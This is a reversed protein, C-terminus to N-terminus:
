SGTLFEIWQIAKTVFHRPVFFVGSWYHPLLKIDGALGTKSARQEARSPRIQASSRIGSTDSLRNHTDTAILL